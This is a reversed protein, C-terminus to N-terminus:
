QFDVTFVNSVFEVQTREPNMVVYVLNLDDPYQSGYYRKLVRGPLTALGDENADLNGFFGPLIGQGAFQVFDLTTADFGIPVEHGLLDFSGPTESALIFYPFGVVSGVPTQPHQCEPAPISVELRVAGDGASQGGALAFQALPSGAGDILELGANSGGQLGRFVIHANEEFGQFLSMRSSIVSLADGIEVHQLDAFDTSSFTFVEQVGNPDQVTFSDGEQFSFVDHHGFEAGSVRHAPVGLGGTSTYFPVESLVNPGM